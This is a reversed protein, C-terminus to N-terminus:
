KNTSSRNSVRISPGIVLSQDKDPRVALSLLVCEALMRPPRVRCIGAPLTYPILM